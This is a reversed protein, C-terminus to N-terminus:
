RREDCHAAAAAAPAPDAIAGHELDFDCENLADHESRPQPELHDYGDYQFWLPHEVRREQRV